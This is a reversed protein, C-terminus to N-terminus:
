RGYGLGVACLAAIENVPEDDLNGDEIAKSICTELEAARERLDSPISGRGGLEYVM